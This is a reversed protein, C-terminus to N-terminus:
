LIVSFHRWSHVKVNQVNFQGFLQYLSLENTDEPLHAVYLTPGSGQQGGASYMGMTQGMNFISGSSMGMDGASMPSYSRSFFCFFILYSFYFFDESDAGILSAMDILWDILRDILRGILGLRDRSVLHLDTWRWSFSCFMNRKGRARRRIIFRDWRPCVVAIAPCLPWRSSRRSPDRRRWWWRVSDAWDWDVPRAWDARSFLWLPLTWTSSTARRLPWRRTRSRFALDLREVVSDPAVVSTAPPPPRPRLPKCQPRPPAPITRTSWRFFPSGFCFLRILWDISWDFVLEIVWDVLWDILWNISTISIWDSLWGILWDIECWNTLLRVSCFMLWFTVELHNLRRRDLFKFFEWKNRSFCKM